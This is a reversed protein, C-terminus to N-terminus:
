RTHHEFTETNFTYRTALHLPNTTAPSVYRIEASPLQHLVLSTYPNVIQLPPTTVSPPVYDTVQLM